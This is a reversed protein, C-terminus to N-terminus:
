KRIEATDDSLLIYEYDDSTYVSVDEEGDAFSFIVLSFVVLLVLFAFRKM